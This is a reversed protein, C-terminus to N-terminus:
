KTASRRRAMSQRPSDGRATDPASDGSSELGLMEDVIAVNLDINDAAQLLAAPTIGHKECFALLVSDRLPVPMNLVKQLWLTFIRKVEDVSGAKLPFQRPLDELMKDGYSRLYRQIKGGFNTQVGKSIEALLSILRSAQAAPVGKKVLLGLIKQAEEDARDISEGSTRIAALREIELHGLDSLYKTIARLDSEPLNCVHAAVITVLENWRSAESAWSYVGLEGAMAPDFLMAKLLYEAKEIHTSDNM